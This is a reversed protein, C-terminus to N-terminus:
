NRAPFIGALAIIFTLALFPQLNNHPQNGGSPSVSAPNLSVNPATAAYIHDSAQALMSNNANSRDARSSRSQLAHGHAPMQTQLVTVSETGTQEGMVYPSLGPGTGQSLAARGRLDPLAFNSTGNGGFQTGL